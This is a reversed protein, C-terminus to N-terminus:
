GFVYVENPRGVFVYILNIDVDYLEDLLDRNMIVNSDIASLRGRSLGAPAFWPDAISDNRSMVGMMGVSPPVVIPARDSPRRMLVDPFYAAAFSTNLVRDSFEKITQRVSPKVDDSEIVQGENDKSLIDM